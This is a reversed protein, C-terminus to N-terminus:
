AAMPETAATSGAPLSSAASARGLAAWIGLTILAAVIGDVAYHWGLHISGFWILLAYLTAVIGLRRDCSWAACAFLVALANHMSPMASIGGGIALNPARYLSLLAAQYVHAYLGPTGHALLFRNQEDLLRTLATFRGTDAHFADYFCPGAAPILTALLSGQVIWSLVYSTLYRRRTRSDPNVFSCIAVGLVMPLFWGHYALDIIQTAWPSPVIAHTIRWADQGFLFRDASAAHDDFWFGVAPLHFEKYINYSCLLLVVTLYPSVVSYCRDLAWRRAIFARVIGLPSVSAAARHARVMQVLLACLGVMVWVSLLSAAYRGLFAAFAAGEPRWMALAFAGALTLPLYDLRVNRM